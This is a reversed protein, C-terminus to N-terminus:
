PSEPLVPTDVPADNAPPALCAALAEVRTRRADSQPLRAHAEIFAAHAQRQRIMGLNFWLREDGPNLLLAQLYSDAARDPRGSRAYLNGLRLLHEPDNPAMRILGLYLAEAQADLGSEYARLAAAQREYPTAGLGIADLPDLTSCAALCLLAPLCILIHRAM